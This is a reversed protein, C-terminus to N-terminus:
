AFQGNFVLDWYRLAERLNGSVEASRATSAYAASEKVAALLRDRKADTGAAHIYGSVRCPDQLARCERLALLGLADAVCASLTKGPACTREQTMLLELHFATLPLPLARSQKWNKLIKVVSKLKGGSASDGDSIYKGHTDPATQMWDDQGDPIAYLPWNNSQTGKWWGPVVDVSRGDTFSIVIAQADKGLDTNPFTQRLAVRVNNLVTTSTKPSDGWFIDERRLLVLIDLDSDGRVASGRSYSGMVLYKSVRFAGDISSQIRRKHSEFGDKDAQTLTSREVIRRFGAAVQDEQNTTLNFM